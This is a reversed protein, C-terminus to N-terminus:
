PVCACVLLRTNACLTSSGIKANESTTATGSGTAGSGTTSTWGTCNNSSYGGTSTAMTWYATTAARPFTADKVTTTLTTGSAAFANWSSTIELGSEGKLATSAGDFSFNTPADAITDGSYSGLLFASSCSINAGTLLNTCFTNTAARNGRDASYQLTDSYLLVYPFSTPVAPNTGANSGRSCVCVVPNDASPSSEQAAVVEATSTSVASGMTISKQGGIEYTNYNYYSYRGGVASNTMFKATVVGAGSLSLDLVASADLSLMNSWSSAIQAGAPGTVAVDTASFNMLSPFHVIADTPSFSMFARKNTCSLGLQTARTTCVADATQRTNIAAFNYTAATGYLIIEPTPETTPETVPVTVPASSATSPVSGGTIKVLNPNAVYCIFLVIVAAGFFLLFQAFTPLTLDPFLTFM